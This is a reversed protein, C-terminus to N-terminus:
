CGHGSEGEANGSFRWVKVEVLGVKNIFQLAVATTIWERAHVGADVIVAPRSKGKKSLHVVNLDRGEWSTGINEVSCSFKAPLDDPCANVIYTTIQLSPSIAYVHAELIVCGTHIYSESSLKPNAAVM